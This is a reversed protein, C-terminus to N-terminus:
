FTLVKKAIKLTVQIDNKQEHSVTWARLNDVLEDYGSEKEEKFKKQIQVLNDEYSEGEDRSIRDGAKLTKAFLNSININLTGM